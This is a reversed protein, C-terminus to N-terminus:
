ERGARVVNLAGGYGTDADAIVPMSVADVIRQVQTVVETMTTLGLDPLGFSANALGAGTMYVAEFGADAIVRATLADAAGPAVLIRPEALRARLAAARTMAHRTM